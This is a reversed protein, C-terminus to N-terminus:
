IGAGLTKYMYANNTFMMEQCWSRWKGSSQSMYKSFKCEHTKWKLFGQTRLSKLVRQYLIFDDQLSQQGYQEKTYVRLIVQKVKLFSPDRHLADILEWSHFHGDIYVVDLSRQLCSPMSRWIFWFYKISRYYMYFVQGFQWDTQRIHDIVWLWMRVFM